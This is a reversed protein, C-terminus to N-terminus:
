SVWCEHASWRITGRLGAHFRPTAVTRFRVVLLPVGLIADAFMVVRALDFGRMGGPTDLIVRTIGTPPRLRKRTSRGVSSPRASRRKASKAGGCGPEHPSSAISM